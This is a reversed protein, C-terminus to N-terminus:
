APRALLRSLIGYPALMALGVLIKVAFDGIAWSVWRPTQEAFLGLFSAQEIAFPDNAGM